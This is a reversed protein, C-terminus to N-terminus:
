STNKVSCHYTETHKKEHSDHQLYVASVCRLNSDLVATACVRAVRCYTGPVQIRCLQTSITCHTINGHKNRCIHFRRYPKLITECIEILVVVRVKHRTVAHLESTHCSRGLTFHVSRAIDARADRSRIFINTRTTQERFTEKVIGILDYLM